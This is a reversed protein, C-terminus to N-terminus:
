CTMFVAYPFAPKGHLVLHLDLIFVSQNGVELSTQPCAGGPFTKSKLEVFEGKRPKQSTQVPYKRVTWVM